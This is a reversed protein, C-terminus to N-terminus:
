LVLGEPVDDPTTRRPDFCVTQAFTQALRQWSRLCFEDRFPAHETKGVYRQSAQVAFFRRPNRLRWRFGSREPTPAERGEGARFGPRPLSYSPILHPLHPALRPIPLTKLATDGHTRM